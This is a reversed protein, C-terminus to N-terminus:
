QLQRFPVSQFKGAYRDRGVGQNEGGIETPLRELDLDPETVIRKRRLGDLHIGVGAQHPDDTLFASPKGRHLLRRGLTDGVPQDAAGLAVSLRNFERGHVAKRANAFDQLKLGIRQCRADRQQIVRALQSRQSEKSQVGM